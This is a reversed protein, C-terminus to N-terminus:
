VEPGDHFLRKLRERKAVWEPRDIICQNVIGRPDKGLKLDLVSRVAGYGLGAFCQDTWCLAHPTVIVNELQLIPDNPSPPEPDFVDLGAGAIKGSLLAKTLAKQDVTSGRSTNILYASSKMKGILESNVIQYTEDNLPCNVVLIDSESFLNELDVMRVGLEDAISTDTYPDCALFKLNFPKALRFMEAGINGIGLSGLTKGVIGVGMHDDRKEFGEAGMRALKDKILLKGTLALILSIIAVAVPRRVGDPVTTLVIGNRTCAEVDVSDYGAGFRAVIALRKSKPISAESFKEDLLILADFTEIEDAVVVSDTQLFSAEVDQDFELNTMDFTPFTPSGDTKLFNKSLGVRYREVM